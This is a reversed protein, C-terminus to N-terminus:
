LDLDGDGDIDMPEFEYNNAFHPLASPDDTFKGTGDNRFVYSTTCRKCSIVADLDWDNDIDVLEADWSWKVLVDPMHDTTADTFRGAGANLYLRTRGGA